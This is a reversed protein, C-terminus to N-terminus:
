ITAQALWVEGATRDLFFKCQDTELKAQEARFHPTDNGILAVYQVYQAVVPHHPFGLKWRKHASLTLFHMGRLDLLLKITQYEKGVQQVVQRAVAAGQEAEPMDIQGTVRHVLTADSTISLTTQIM